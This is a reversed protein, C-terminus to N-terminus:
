LISLMSSCLKYWPQLKSITIRFDNEMNTMSCYKTRIDAVASFGTKCIYSTASPLINLVKRSLLPVGGEV